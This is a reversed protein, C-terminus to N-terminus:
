IWGLLKKAFRRERFAALSKRFIKLVIHAEQRSFTGVAFLAVLYAICGM